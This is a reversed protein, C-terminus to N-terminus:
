PKTFLADDLKEALTVETVAIDWHPKGDWLVALKMAQQTGQVDKYDSFIMEETVEKDNEQDKVRMEVKLLLYNAKDFFLKVEKQDKHVVKVGVAPRDGVKSEGLPSLQFAKDKLPVLMTIWDVYASLREQDLADDELPEAEDDDIKTWGKDRDFVTIMKLKVDGGAFNMISRTRAPAQYYWEGTFSLDDRHYKGKGKFTTAQFKTLKAEGGAAQIAKDLLPKVAVKDDARVSSPVLLMMLSFGALVRM